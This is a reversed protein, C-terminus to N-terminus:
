IPVMVMRERLRKVLLDQGQDVFEGLVERWIRHLEDYTKPEYGQQALCARVAEGTWSPLAVVNAECMLTNAEAEITSLLEAGAAQLSEPPYAFFVDTVCLLNEAQWAAVGVLNGGIAAVWLGKSFLWEMVDAEDIELRAESAERVLTAIPALDSRGARRVEVAAQPEGAAPSTEEVEVQPQAPTGEVAQKGKRRKKAAM